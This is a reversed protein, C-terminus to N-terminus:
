FCKFMKLYMDNKLTHHMCIDTTNYQTKKTSALDKENFM